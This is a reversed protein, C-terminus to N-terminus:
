THEELRELWVGSPSVWKMGTKCIPFSLSLSPFHNAVSLPLTLSRWGGSARSVGLLGPLMSPM